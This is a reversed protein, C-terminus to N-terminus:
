RYPVGKSRMGTSFEIVSTLVVRDPSSERTMPKIALTQMSFLALRQGVIIRVCPRWRQGLSVVRPRAVDNERLCSNGAQLFRSIYSDDWGPLLGHTLMDSNGNGKKKAQGQVMLRQEFLTL